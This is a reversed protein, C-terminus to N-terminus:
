KEDVTLKSIHPVSHRAIAFMLKEYKTIMHCPKGCRVSHHPHLKKDSIIITNSPIFRTQRHQKLHSKKEPSHSQTRCSICSISNPYIIACVSLHLQLHLFLCLLLQLCLCGCICVCISFIVFVFM